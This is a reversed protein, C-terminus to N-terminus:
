WEMDMVELLDILRNVTRSERASPHDTLYKELANMVEGVEARSEFQIKDMTKKM